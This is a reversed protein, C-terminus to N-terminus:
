RTARTKYVYALLAAVAEYLTEPIATGSDVIFLSELLAEDTVIEIGYERAIELMRDALVGRNKTIVFPATDGPEYRIAVARKM